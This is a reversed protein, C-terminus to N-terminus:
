KKSIEDKKNKLETIHEEISRITQMKMQHYEELKTEQQIQLEEFKRELEHHWPYLVTVQFALAASAIAFNVIPVLKRVLPHPM